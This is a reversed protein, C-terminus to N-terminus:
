QATASLRRRRVEVALAALGGVAAVLTCQAVLLPWAVHADVQIDEGWPSAPSRDWVPRWEM